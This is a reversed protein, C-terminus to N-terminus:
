FTGSLQLGFFRSGVLPTAHFTNMHAQQSSRKWLRAWFVAGVTTAIAGVGAAAIGFTRVTRASKITSSSELDDKASQLQNETPCEWNRGSRSCDWENAIEDKENQVNLTGLVILVGGAITIAAGSATMLIPWPEKRGHDRGAIAPEPTAPEPATTEPDLAPSAVIPTAQAQAIKENLKEIRKEVTAREEAEPDKELYTRLAHVAALRDGSLEYARAINLLLKLATCDRRFADDWYLLAREYDAEQFSLQGARYAGKAAAIDSDTPEHACQPYEKLHEDASAHFTWGTVFLFGFLLLTRQPLRHRLHHGPGWRRPVSHNPQPMWNM